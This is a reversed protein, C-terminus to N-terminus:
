KYEESFIIFKESFEPPNPHILLQPFVALLTGTPSQVMLLMGWTDMEM